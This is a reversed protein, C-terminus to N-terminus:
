VGEGGDAFFQACQDDGGADRPLACEGLMGAERQVVLVL